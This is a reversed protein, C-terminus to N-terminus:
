GDRPVLRFIGPAAPVTENSRLIRERAERIAADGKQDLWRRTVYAARGEEFARRIEEPVDARRRTGKWV